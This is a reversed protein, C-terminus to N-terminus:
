PTNLGRVIIYSNLWSLLHDNEVAVAMAIHDTYDEIKFPQLKVVIQPNKELFADITGSNGIALLTEGEEAALIMDEYRDYTKIKANHFYKLAGTEYASRGIVGITETTSKLEDLHQMGATLNGAAMKKRNLLLLIGLKRYPNTFKIKKARECTISLNSLGIDANGSAVLDIVDEFHVATIIELTVGLKNAVDQAMDAELGQLRGEPTKTIFPPYDQGVMAVVVKKSDIIQTLDRVPGKEATVLSAMITILTFIITAAWRKKM